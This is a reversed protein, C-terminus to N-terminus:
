TTPRRALCVNRLCHRAPKFKFSQGNKCYFLTSHHVPSTLLPCGRPSLSIASHALWHM